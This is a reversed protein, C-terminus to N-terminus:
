PKTNASKGSLWLLAFGIVPIFIDTWLVAGANGPAFNHATVIQYIHGGAAGLLFFSPGIM